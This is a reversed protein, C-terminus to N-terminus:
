SIFPSVVVLALKTTQMKFNLKFILVKLTREERM